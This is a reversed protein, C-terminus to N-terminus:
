RGFCCRGSWLQNLHCSSWFQRDWLPRCQASALWCTVFRHGLDGGVGVRLDSWPNHQELLHLGCRSQGYILDL